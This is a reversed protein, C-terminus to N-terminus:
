ITVGKETLYSEMTDLADGHMQYVLGIRYREGDSSEAKVLSPSNKWFSSGGTGNIIAKEQLEFEAGQLAGSSDRSLAYRKIKGSEEFSIIKVGPFQPAEELAGYQKGFPSVEVQKPKEVGYKADLVAQQEEKLPEKIKTVNSPEMQSSPTGPAQNFNM